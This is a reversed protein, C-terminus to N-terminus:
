WDVFLRRYAERMLRDALTRAAMARNNEVQPIQRAALVDEHESIELPGSLPDGSMQDFLTFRVKVALRYRGIEVRDAGSRFSGASFRTELVTCEVRVDAQEFDVLEYGGESTFVSRGAQTL